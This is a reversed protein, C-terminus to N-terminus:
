LGIRKKSKKGQNLDVWSLSQGTRMEHLREQRLRKRLEDSEQLAENKLREKYELNNLLKSQIENKEYQQMIPEPLDSYDKEYDDWQIETHHVCLKPWWMEAHQYSKSLLELNMKKLYFTLAGTDADYEWMSQEPIIGRCLKGEFYVEEGSRSACKVFDPLMQVGLDRSAKLGRPVQLLIIKVEDSSQRWRLSSDCLQAYVEDPLEAKSYYVRSMAFGHKEARECPSGDALVLKYMKYPLEIETKPRAPKQDGEVRGASAKGGLLYSFEFDDTGQQARVSETIDSLEASAAQISRGLQRETNEGEIISYITSAYSPSCLDKVFGKATRLNASDAACRIHIELGVTLGGAESFKIFAFQVDLTSRCMFHKAFSGRLEERVAATLGGRTGERFTISVIMQHIQVGREGQLLHSHKYEGAQAQRLLDQVRATEQPSLKEAFEKLKSQYKDEKSDYECAQSFCKVGQALDVDDHDSKECTYAVGLQCYTRALDKYKAVTTAGSPGSSNAADSYHKHTCAVALMADAQAQKLCKAKCYIASRLEYAERDCICSDLLWEYVKDFYVSREAGSQDQQHSIKIHRFCAEVKEEKSVDELTAAKIAGGEQLKALANVIWQAIEERRMSAVVRRIEKAVEERERDGEDDGRPADVRDYSAKLAELAEARRKLGKLAQAKRWHAKAWRPKLLVCRNADELASAYRGCRTLALSRNSLVLHNQGGQGKTKTGNAELLKLAETYHEIADRYNQKKVEGDAKRKLYDAKMCGLSETGM